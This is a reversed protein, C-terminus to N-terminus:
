GLGNIVLGSVLLVKRFVVIAAVVPKSSEL